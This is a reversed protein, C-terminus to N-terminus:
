KGAGGSKAFTFDQTAAQKAAVTVTATQTGMVEHDAV